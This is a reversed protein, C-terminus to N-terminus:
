QRRPVSAPAPTTPITMAQLEHHMSLQPQLRAPLSAAPLLKPSFNNHLSNILNWTPQVRAHSAMGGPLFADASSRGGGGEWGRHELLLM